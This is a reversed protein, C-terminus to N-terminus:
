NLRIDAESQKRQMHAVVGRIVIKSICNRDYSTHAHHFLVKSSPM